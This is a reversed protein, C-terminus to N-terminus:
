NLALLYYLLRCMSNSKTTGLRYGTARLAIRWQNDDWRLGLFAIYHTLNLNRLCWCSFSPEDRMKLHWWGENTIGISFVQRKTKVYSKSTKYLQYISKRRLIGLLIQGGLPLVHYNVFINSLYFRSRPHFLQTKRVLTVSRNEFRTLFPLYESKWPLCVTVFHNSWIM